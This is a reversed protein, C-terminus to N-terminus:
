GNDPTFISVPLQIGASNLKDLFRPIIGSPRLSGQVAGNEIGTQEFLFIDELVIVGKDLGQVESICVIKRSGDRMLEQHVILDIASCIQERIAILPLEPIAMAIFRELRSLTDRPSISSLTFMCGDHGRNMASVMEFTEAGMLEEVLIRDPRMRLAGQMLDLMTVAGRGEVNPPRTELRILRKHPLGADSMVQQLLLIREELPIWQAIVKMLTTKGSGTGGSIAINVRAEICAKLFDAAAQTLVGWKFLDGLQIKQPRAKLITIAPGVVSIPPLIMDARTGDPMRLSILPNLENVQINLIKAFAQVLGYLEDETHFPTPVDEFHDNKEVYVYKWGDIMIREVAPDDLLNQIYPLQTSM